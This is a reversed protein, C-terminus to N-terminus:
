TSLLTIVLLEYLVLPIIANYPGFFARSGRATCQLYIFCRDAHLISGEYIHGDVTQVRIHRHKHRMCVDAMKSRIDMIRGGHNEAAKYLVAPFLGNAPPAPYQQEAM